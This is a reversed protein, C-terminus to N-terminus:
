KRLLQFPLLLVFLALALAWPGWLPATVYWWSWQAVVGLGLLKLTLLVLFLLGMLGSGGAATRSKEQVSM